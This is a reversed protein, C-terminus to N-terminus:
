DHKLFNLINTFLLVPNLAGSVKEKFGLTEMIM